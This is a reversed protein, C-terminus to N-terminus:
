SLILKIGQEFSMPEYDPMIGRLKSIDPRRNTV